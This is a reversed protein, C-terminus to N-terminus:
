LKNIKGEWRAIFYCIRNWFNKNYKGAGLEWKSTSVLVSTESITLM